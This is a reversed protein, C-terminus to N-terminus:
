ADRGPTPDAPEASREPTDAPSLADSDRSRSLEGPVRGGPARVLDVARALWVVRMAVMTVIALQHVAAVAAIRWWGARGVDIVGTLWAAVAVALVAGLSPVLWGLFVARGRRRALQLADKAADGFGSDNEVVAVRAVDHLVGLAALAALFPL